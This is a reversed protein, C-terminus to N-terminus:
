QGSAPLARAMRLHEQLIPLTEDAFTRIQPDKSNHAAKFLRIAKEHAEIAHRKCTRDFEAGNLSSLHEIVRENNASMTTPMELGKESAIRTLQENAKSHDNVLRQGFDKVMQDQSNQQALGGMRVEALGASGAERVFAADSSYAVSDSSVIDTTNGSLNRAGDGQTNPTSTDASTSITDTTTSSAVTASNTSQGTLARSGAGRSTSDDSEVIAAGAPPSYSYTRSFSYNPSSEFPNAKLARGGAGRSTNSYDDDRVGNNWTGNERTYVPYGFSGDSSYAYGSPGTSSSYTTSSSYGYTTSSPSTNVSVRENYERHACGAAVVMVSSLAALKNMMIM